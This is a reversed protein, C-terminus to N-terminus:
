SVTTKIAITLGKKEEIVKEVEMMAVVMTIADEVIVETVVMGSKVMTNEEGTMRQTNMMDEEPM